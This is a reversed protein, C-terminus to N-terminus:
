CIMSRAPSVGKRNVPDSYRRSGPLCITRRWCLRRTPALASWVHRRPRVHPLHPYGAAACHLRKRSSGAATSTRHASSLLRISASLGDGARVAAKTRGRPPLRMVVWAVARHCKEGSGVAAGGAFDPWATPEETGAGMRETVGRTERKRFSELSVSDTKAGMPDSADPVALIRIAVLLPGSKKSFCDMGIQDSRIQDSDIDRRAWRSLNLHQTDNTRM